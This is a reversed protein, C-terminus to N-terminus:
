WFKLADKSNNPRHQVYHFLCLFNELGQLSVQHSMLYSFLIPVHILGLNNSASMHLTVSIFFHVVCYCYGKLHYGINPM